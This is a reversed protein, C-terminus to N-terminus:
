EESAGDESGEVESLSDEMQANEEDSAYNVRQVGRGSRRTAKEGDDTTRPKPKTKKALPTKTDGQEGEDESPPVDSLSDQSGEGEWEAM